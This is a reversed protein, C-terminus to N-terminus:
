FGRLDYLPELIWQYIPREDLLVSADVQMSAQLPKSQNYAMVDQRDPTVIVRYYFTNSRSSPPMVPVLSRLEEPGLAAQSVETVTGEYEGFKQYPFASYRLLVREGPRIFGISTSPALLEARMKNDSPIITVMRAGTAVMQGPYSAIATVRGAGPARIEVSHRTESNVVQQDLESIKSRMSDVDNDVQLDNTTLQYQTDSLQARLRLASGKLEELEDKARMWTQQQALKEHLTSIGTEAFRSFDVYNQTVTRVFETKMAIETDMQAVQAQLNEIKRQLEANQKNRLEIKRAIQYVLVSRQTALARLIQQQTNGNRTSTDINVVYLPEGRVVVQGDRVHTSEIWGAAPSSVEILGAAPLVVGHLQIRQAYNGFAVLAAAAIVILASAVSTLAVPFGLSVAPRGLWVTQRAELSEPRFLGVKTASKAIASEQPRTVGM